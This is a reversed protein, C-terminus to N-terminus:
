EGLFIITVNYSLNPNIEIWVPVLFKSIFKINCKGEAYCIKFKGRKKHQLFHETHLSLLVAM